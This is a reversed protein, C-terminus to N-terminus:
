IIMVYYILLPTLQTFSGWFGEARVQSSGKFRDNNSHKALLASVVDGM